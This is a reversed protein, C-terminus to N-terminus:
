GTGIHACSHLNDYYLSHKKCHTHYLHVNYENHLMYSILVPATHLMHHSLKMQNEQVEAHTDIYIYIYICVNTNKFHFTNLTIM